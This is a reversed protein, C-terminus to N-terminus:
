GARSPSDFRPNDFSGRLVRRVPSGARGELTQAIKFRLPISGDGLLVPGLQLSNMFAWAEVISAQSKNVTSLKEQAPEVHEEEDLVLTPLHM